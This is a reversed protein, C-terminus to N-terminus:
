KAPFIVDSKQITGPGTPLHVNYGNNGPSTDPLGRQNVMPEPPHSSVMITGCLENKAPREVSLTGAAVSRRGIFKNIRSEGPKTIGIWPQSRPPLLTFPERLEDCM